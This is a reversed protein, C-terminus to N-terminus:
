MESDTMCSQLFRAGLRLYVPLKPCYVAGLHNVRRSTDLGHEHSPFSGHIVPSVSAFNGAVFGDSLHNLTTLDEQSKALKLNRAELLGAWMAQFIVAM